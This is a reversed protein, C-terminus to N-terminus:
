FVDNGEQVVAYGDGSIGIGDGENVTRAIGHGEAFMEKVDVGPQVWPIGLTVM